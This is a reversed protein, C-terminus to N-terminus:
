RIGRAITSPVFSCNLTVEDIVYLYYEGCTVNGSCASVTNNTWSCGGSILQTGNPCKPICMGSGNPVTCSGPVINPDIGYKICTGTGYCEGSNNGYCLNSSLVYGSPCVIGCSGQPVIKTQSVKRRAEGTACGSIVFMAVIVLVLGLIIYRKHGM